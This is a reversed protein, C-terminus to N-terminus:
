WIKNPTINKSQDNFKGHHTNYMEKSIIIQYFVLNFRTRM